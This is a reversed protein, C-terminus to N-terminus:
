STHVAPQVPLLKLFFQFSFLLLVFARLIFYKHIMFYLKRILGQFPATCTTIRVKQLRDVDHIHPGSKMHIIQGWRIALTKMIIECQCKWNFPLYCHNWNGNYNVQQILSPLSSSSSMFSPQNINHRSDWLLLLCETKWWSWCMKLTLGKKLKTWYGDDTLAEGTFM